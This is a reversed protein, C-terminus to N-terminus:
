AKWISIFYRAKRRLNLTTSTGMTNTLRTAPVLLIDPEMKPSAAKPTMLSRRWANLFFIQHGACQEVVGADDCAIVVEGAVEDDVAVAYGFDAFTVRGFFQLGGALCCLVKAALPQQRADDVVLHVEAVRTEGMLSVDLCLATGCHGSADGGEHIHGVGLGLRHRKLGPLVLHSAGRVDGVGVVGEEEAGGVVVGRLNVPEVRLLNRPQLDEEAGGCAVHENVLFLCQLTDEREGPQYGHVPLVFLDDAGVGISEALAVALVHGDGGM